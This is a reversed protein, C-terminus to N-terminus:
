WCWRSRAAQTTPAREERASKEPDPDLGARPRRTAQRGQRERSRHGASDYENPDPSLRGLSSQRSETGRRPLPRRPRPWPCARRASERAGLGPRSRARRRRARRAGRVQGHRWQPLAPRAAALARLPPRDRGGAVDLDLASATSTSSSRDGEEVVAIPGGLAAEPAVHGIMLGHTGGSFRGDTLLAVSDGLGEGVLAGTM